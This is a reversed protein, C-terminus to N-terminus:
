IIGDVKIPFCLLELFVTPSLRISEQNSRKTQYTKASHAGVRRWKGGVQKVNDAKSM